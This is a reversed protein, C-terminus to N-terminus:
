KSPQVKSKLRRRFANYIFLDAIEGLTLVSAGLLLGMLGGLESLLNQYRYAKQQAVKNETLEKYFVDVSLFNKYWVSDFAQMTRRDYDIYTISREFEICPVYIALKYDLQDLQKQLFSQHEKLAEVLGFWYQSDNGDSLMSYDLLPLELDGILKTSPLEADPSRIGFDRWYNSIGALTTAKGTQAMIVFYIQNIQKRIDSLLLSRGNISSDLRLKLGHVKNSIEDFSNGLSNGVAELTMNTATYDAQFRHVAFNQRELYSYLSVLMEATVVQNGGYENLLKPLKTQCQLGWAYGVLDSMLLLVERTDDAAAQADGNISQTLQFAIRIKDRFNVLTEKTIPFRVWAWFWKVWNESLYDDIAQEVTRIVENLRTRTQEGVRSLVRRQLVEIVPTASAEVCWSCHEGIDSRIADLLTKNLAFNSYLGTNLNTLNGYLVAHVGDRIYKLSSLLESATQWITMNNRQITNNVYDDYARRYEAHLPDSQIMLPWIDGYQGLAGEIVAMTENVLTELQVFADSTLTLLVNKFDDVHVSINSEVTRSSEFMIDRMWVCDAKVQLAHTTAHDYEAALSGNVHQTFKKMYLMQQNMIHFIRATGLYKERVVRYTVERARFLKSQLRATKEDQSTSEEGLIVSFSTTPVYQVSECPNPCSSCENSAARLEDMKVKACHIWDGVGCVKPIGENSPMQIERCKCHRDIYQTECDVKCRTITYEDFYKMAQERCDGWPDGLNSVMTTVTYYDVDLMSSMSEVNGVSLPLWQATFYRQIFESQEHSANKYLEELSLDEVITGNETKLLDLFAYACTISFSPDEIWQDDAFIKWNKDVDNRGEYSSNITSTDQPVSAYHQIRALPRDSHYRDAVLWYGNTKYIFLYPSERTIYVLEQDPFTLPQQEFKSPTKVAEKLPSELDDAKDSSIWILPCVDVPINDSKM